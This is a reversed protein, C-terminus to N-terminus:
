KRSRCNTGWLVREPAAGILARAFPMADAFPPGASSVREAGCVKAWTSEHRMFDLLVRSPEQGVGGSASVRAMHDIAIPLPLKRFEEADDAIDRFDLHPDYADPTRTM